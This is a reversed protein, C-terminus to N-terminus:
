LEYKAQRQVDPGVTFTGTGQNTLFREQVLDYMGPKGDSKRYCPIFDAITVNNRIHKYSYVKISSMKDATGNFCRGFLYMPYTTDKNQGTTTITNGDVTWTTGDKVVKYRVNATIPTTASSSIDFRFKSRLIGLEVYGSSIYSGFVVRDQTIAVPAVDVEIRDNAAYLLNTDIYQTDTSEIYEVEQYESPLRGSVKEWLVTTGSLIRSVSGEPITIAKVQSFDM